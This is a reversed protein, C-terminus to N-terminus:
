QAAAQIRAMETEILPGDYEGAHASTGVYSAAKADLHVNVRVTDGVLEVYAHYRPFQGTGARRSYSGNRELHYGLRSFFVKVNGVRIASLAVKM